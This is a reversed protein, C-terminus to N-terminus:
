LCIFCIIETIDWVQVSKQSFDGDEIAIKELVYIMLGTNRTVGYLKNM